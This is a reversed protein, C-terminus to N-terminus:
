GSELMSPYYPKLRRLLDIIKRSFKYGYMHPHDWFPVEGKKTYLYPYELTEDHLTEVTMPKLLFAGIDKRKKKGQPYGTIVVKCRRNEKDISQIRCSVIDGVIPEEVSRPKSGKVELGSALKVFIGYIPHVATIKGGIADMSKQKELDDFPDAFTAKRSVQILEREVDIREVKVKIKSGRDIQSSIDRIRGHDWDFKMMFCDVGNVRVFIRETEPNFGSVVGEYTEDSLIGKQEEYKLQNWFRDKKIQDAKKVSVIAIRNQLDLEDIIFEQQTTVFGSLSRFERESFEHVPCYARVGSMLEFIAVEVDKTVKRGNEEIPMKLFGVSQVYGRTIEGHRRIRALDELEETSEWSQKLEEM